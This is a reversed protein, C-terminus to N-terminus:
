RDRKKLNATWGGGRKEPGGRLGPVPQGYRSGKEPNRRKKNGAAARNRKWPGTRM